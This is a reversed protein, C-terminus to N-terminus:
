LVSPTVLHQIKTAKTVPKKGEKNSPKRVVYQYVDDEKLSQFSESEALEKTELWHPGITDTM